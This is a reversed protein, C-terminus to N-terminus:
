ADLAKRESAKEGDKLYRAYKLLADKDNLYRFIRLLEREQDTLVTGEPDAAAKATRVFSCEDFDYRIFAGMDLLEQFTYQKDYKEGHGSEYIHRHFPTVTDTMEHEDLDIEDLREVEYPSSTISRYVSFGKLIVKTEGTLLYEMSVGFYKSIKLCTDGNPLSGRKKWNSVASSKIGIVDCVEKMSKGHKECLEKFRDYM